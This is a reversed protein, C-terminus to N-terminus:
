LELNGRAAHFSVGDSVTVTWSFGQVFVTELDDM